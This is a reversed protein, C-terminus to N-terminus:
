PELDVILPLDEMSVTQEPPVYTEGNQAALEEATLMEAFEPYIGEAVEEKPSGGGNNDYFLAVGGALFAAGVFTITMGTVIRSFTSRPVFGSTESSIDM